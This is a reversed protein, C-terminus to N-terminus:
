RTRCVWCAGNRTCATIRSERSSPWGPAERSTATISYRDGTKATRTVIIMEKTQSVSIRGAGDASLDSATNRVSRPNYLGRELELREGAALSAISRRVNVKAKEDM